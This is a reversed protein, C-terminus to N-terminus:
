INYMITDNAINIYRGRLIRGTELYLKEQDRSCKEFDGDYYYSCTYNNKKKTVHDTSENCTCEMVIAHNNDGMTLKLLKCTAKDKSEFEGIRQPAEYAYVAAVSLALIGMLTSIGQVNM